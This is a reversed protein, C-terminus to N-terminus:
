LGRKRKLIHEFMMSTDCLNAHWRTPPLFNIKELNLMLSALISNQHLINAYQKTVSQMKKTVAQM